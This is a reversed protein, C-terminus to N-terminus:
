NGETVLSFQLRFYLQSNGLKPQWYLHHTGDSLYDTQLIEGQSPVLQWSDARLDESMELVSRAGGAQYNSIPDGYGGTRQTIIM